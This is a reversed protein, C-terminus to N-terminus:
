RTGPVRRRRPQEDHQARRRQGFTVAAVEDLLARSGPEQGLVPQGGGREPQHETPLGARYTQESWPRLYTLVALVRRNDDTEPLLDLRTFINRVHTEVTKKTLMLQTCIAQNSRGQAMLALIERERGSLRELPDNRRKARMM